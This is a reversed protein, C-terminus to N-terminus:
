HRCLLEQTYAIIALDDCQTFDASPVRRLYNLYKLLETSTSVPMVLESLKPVRGVRRRNTLARSARPFVGGSSEFSFYFPM